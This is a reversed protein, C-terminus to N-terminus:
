DEILEQIIGVVIEKGFENPPTETLTTLIKDNNRFCRRNKM